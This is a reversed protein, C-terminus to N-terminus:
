MFSYADIDLSITVGEGCNMAAIERSCTDAIIRAGPAKLTCQYRFQGYAKPLPAPLPDSIQVQPPLVGLLRKHLTEMALAAVEEQESRTTIVAM